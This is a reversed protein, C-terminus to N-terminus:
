IFMVDDMDFGELRSAEHVLIRFLVYGSLVTKKKRQVTRFGGVSKFYGIVPIACLGSMLESLLFSVGQVIVLRHSYDMQDLGTVGFSLTKYVRLFVASTLHHYSKKQGANTDYASRFCLWKHLLNRMEEKGQVVAQELVVILADLEVLEEEYKNKSRQYETMGSAPIKTKIAELRELRKKLTAQAAKKGRLDSSNNKNAEVANQYNASNEAVQETSLVGNDFEADCKKYLEHIKDGDVAPLYSRPNQFAKLTGYVVYPKLFPIGFNPCQALIHDITAQSWFGVVEDKLARVTEIYHQSLLVVGEKEEETYTSENYIVQSQTSITGAVAVIPSNVITQGGSLLFGPDIGDVPEPTPIAFSTREPFPRGFLAPGFESPAYASYVNRRDSGTNTFHTQLNM